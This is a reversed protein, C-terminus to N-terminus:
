LATTAAAKRPPRNKPPTVAGPQAVETKVSDRPGAVETREASRAGHEGHLKRSKKGAGKM